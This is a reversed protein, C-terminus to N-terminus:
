SQKTANANLWTLLNNMDTVTGIFKNITVTRVKELDSADTVNHQTFDTGGSSTNYHRRVQWSGNEPPNTPIGVSYTTRFYPRTAAASSSIDVYVGSNPITSNITIREMTHQIIPTANNDKSSWFSGDIPLDITGSECPYVVENMLWTGLLGGVTPNDCKIMVDTLMKKGACLLNATKGAEIDTTKNNYTVSGAGGFFVSIAGLAKKGQCNLTAAQGEELSALSGDNYSVTTDDNVEALLGWRMSNQDEASNDNVEVVASGTVVTPSSLAAIHGDMGGTSVGNILPVLTLTGSSATGKHIRFCLYSNVYSLVAVDVESNPAVTGAYASVAGSGSDDPYNYLVLYVDGSTNNIFKM